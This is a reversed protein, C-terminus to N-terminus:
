FKHIIEEIGIFKNVKTFDKVPIDCEVYDFFEDKFLILGFLASTDWSFIVTHFTAVPNVYKSANLMSRFINLRDM